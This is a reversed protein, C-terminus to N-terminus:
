NHARVLVWLQTHYSPSPSLIHEHVNWKYLCTRLMNQQIGNLPKSLAPMCTVSLWIILHETHTQSKMQCSTRSLNPGVQTLLLYCSIFRVLWSSSLMVFLHYPSRVSKFARRTLHSSIPLVRWEQVGWSDSM